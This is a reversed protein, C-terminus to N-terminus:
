TIRESLDARWPPVPEAGPELWYETAAVLRGGDVTFFSAAHDIRDGIRVRVESVAQDGGPDGVIRLVEIHWDGPYARNFEIWADASTFREGSAVLHCAFDDHLLARVGAWDRAELREWLAHVTETTTM